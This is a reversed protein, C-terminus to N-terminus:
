GKYKTKSCWRVGRCPRLFWGMSFGRDLISIKQKFENNVIFSILMILSKLANLM